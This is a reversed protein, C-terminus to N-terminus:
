SVGSLVLHVFFNQFVRGLFLLVQIHYICYLLVIQKPGINVVFDMSRLMSFYRKSMHMALFCCCELHAVVSHLQSWHDCLPGILFVQDGFHLSQLFVLFIFCSYQNCVFYFFYPSRGFISCFGSVFLIYVMVIYKIWILGIMVILFWFVTSVSVMVISICIQFVFFQNRNLSEIIGVLFVIISILFLSLFIICVCQLCCATFLVSSLILVFGQMLLVNHVNALLEKVYISSYGLLSLGM